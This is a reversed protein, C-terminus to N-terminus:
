RGRSKPKLALRIAERIMRAPIHDYKRGKYTFTRCDVARGTLCACSQCANSKKRSGKAVIREVDRGNILITPSLRIKSEPLKREKFDIEAKTGKIAKKLERLTKKVAKNTAACRTCATKNYYLFEIRLM